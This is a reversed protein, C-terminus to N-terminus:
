SAVAVQHLQWPALEQGYCPKRIAELTLQFIPSLYSGRSVADRDKSSEVGLGPKEPAHVGHAQRMPEDSGPPANPAPDPMPRDDMGGPMSPALAYGLKFKPTKPARWLGGAIDKTQTKSLLRAMFNAVFVM